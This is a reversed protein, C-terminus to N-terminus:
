TEYIGLLFCIIIQLIKATVVRVSMCVGVLQSVHMHEYYGLQIVIKM